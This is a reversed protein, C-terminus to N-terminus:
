SSPPSCASDGRGGDRRGSVAHPRRVGALVTRRGRGAVECGHIAAAHRDALQQKEREAFDAASKGRASDRTRSHGIFHSGAPCPVAITRQWGTKGHTQQAAPEPPKVPGAPSFGSQRGSRQLGRATLRLHLPHAMRRIRQLIRSVAQQRVVVARGGAHAGAEGGSMLVSGASSRLVLHFRDRLFYYSGEDIHRFVQSKPKLRM